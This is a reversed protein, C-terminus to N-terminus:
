EASVSMGMFLVVVIAMFLYSILNKNEFFIYQDGEAFRTFYGVILALLPAEILNILLYQRDTTKIRLNRKSFCDPVAEM